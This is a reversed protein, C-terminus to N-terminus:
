GRLWTYYCNVWKSDHISDNWVQFGLVRKWLVLKLNMVPIDQLWIKLIVNTMKNFAWMIMEQIRQFLGPDEFVTLCWPFVMSPCSPCCWASQHVAGSSTLVLVGFEKKIRIEIGHTKLYGTIVFKFSKKKRIVCIGQEEVGLYLSCVATVKLTWVVLVSSRQFGWLFSGPTHVHPGGGDGYIGIYGM